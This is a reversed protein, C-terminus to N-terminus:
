GPLCRILLRAAGTELRRPWQPPCGTASREDRRSSCKGRRTYIQLHGNIDTRIFHAVNVHALEDILRSYGLCRALVSEAVHALDQFGQGNSVSLAVLLMVLRDLGKELNSRCIVVPHARTPHFAARFGWSTVRSSSTQRLAGLMLPTRLLAM